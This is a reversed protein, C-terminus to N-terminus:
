QESPVVQAGVMRWRELAPPSEVPLVVHFPVAPRHWWEGEAVPRSWEDAARVLSDVFVRLLDPEAELVRGADVIVLVFGHTRPLWGLDALCEDLADWNEGFYLPFQLAAAVEDFLASATAMKAGRLVRVVLGGDAWASTLAALESNGVDVAVLPPGVAALAHELSLM